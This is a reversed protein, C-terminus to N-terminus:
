TLRAVNRASTTIEEIASMTPPIPTIAMMIIETVSRVRSIPTRFASPARRRPSRQCTRISGAKRVDSPPPRPTPKTKPLLMPSSTWQSEPKGTDSGQHDNAIPMPNEALTPIKKPSNGAILAERRSGMSASLYSYDAELKPQYNGTGLKWNGTELE